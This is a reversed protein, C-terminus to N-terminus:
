GSHWVKGLALDVREFDQQAGVLRTLVKRHDGKIKRVCWGWAARPQVDVGAELEFKPVPVVLAMM